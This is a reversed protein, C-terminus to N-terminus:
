VSTTIQRSHAFAEGGAERKGGGGWFIQENSSYGRFDPNLVAADTERLSREEAPSNSARQCATAMSDRWRVRQSISRSFSNLMDKLTMALVSSSICIHKSFEPLNYIQELYVIISNLMHCPIFVFYRIKRKLSDDELKDSM